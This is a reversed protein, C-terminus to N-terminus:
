NCGDIMAEFEAGAKVEFYNSLEVYQGAKFSVNESVDIIGNSEIYDSVHYVGTLHQGPANHVINSLCNNGVEINNLSLLCGNADTISVGYIGPM